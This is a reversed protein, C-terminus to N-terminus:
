LDGPGACVASAPAALELEPRQTVELDDSGDPVAPAQGVASKPALREADESVHGPSPDGIEGPDDSRPLGGGQDADSGGYALVVALGVPSGTAQADGDPSGAEDQAAAEPEAGPGGSDRAPVDAEEALNTASAVRSPGSGGDPGQPDPPRPPGAPGGPDPLEGTQEYVKAAELCERFAREPGQNADVAREYRARLEAWAAANREQQEGFEATSEDLLYHHEGCQQQLATMAGVVREPPFQYQRLIGPETRETMRSGGHVEMIYEEAVLLMGARLASTTGIVAGVDTDEMALQALEFRGGAPVLQQYPTGPNHIPGNAHHVGSTTALLSAVMEADERDFLDPHGHMLGVAAAFCDAQNLRWDSGDQALLHAAGAIVMNDLHAAPLRGADILRQGPGLVAEVFVLSHEANSSPLWLSRTGSSGTQLGGSFDGYAGETQALL